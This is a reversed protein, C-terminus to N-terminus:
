LKTKLRSLVEAARRVEDPTLAAGAYRRRYHADVLASLEALEPRMTAVGTAFERPTQEPRRTLGARALAREASEYADGPRLWARFYPILWWGLGLVVVWPLIRAFVSMVTDRLRDFAMGLRFRLFTDRQTYQDYGIISRYWRTQLDDAWRQVRRAFADTAATFGSEAPTADVTVWGRGAVWAEVWAHANSQRIDYFKGWENWDESRFGTVLRTPVGAHRLLIAAATAFYECNGRRVEFLFEPLLVRRSEGSLSYSYERTLHRKIADIKAAPDTMGMTWQAALSAVRGGPDRPLVLANALARARLGDASDTPEWGPPGAYERYRAGGGFTGASLISDTHDFWLLESIGDIGRPAGVTFVVSVQMPYVDLDVFAENGPPAPFATVAGRRRGWARGLSTNMRRGDPSSYRFDLPVKTWTEGDFSDFAAGRVFLSPTATANVPVEPKVRMARASSRRLAGFRGLSVRDTFGIASQPSIRLKDMGSTVFPNFRRLGEVRPVILFVVAGLLAGAVVLRGLSPAWGRWRSADAGAQLTLWAAGFAVYAVFLPFYWPSVTLGSVLMFALFEILFNQRLERKPWPSFLRNFLLYGLLHVNALVVGSHRWDVLILFFLMGASMVNWAWLPPFPGGREQLWFGVPIFPAFGLLARPNLDDILFMASYVLAGGILTLRRLAPTDAAGPDVSSPAKAAPRPTAGAGVLALAGLLVDLQKRGKAPAVEVGPGTLGTEVGADVYWRCAAAAREVAPDDVGELRVSVRGEPATSFEAVVPAGTKATLKWHILRADDDPTYARPGFFEGDRGKRRGGAGMARPDEDLAPQPQFPGAQPLAVIDLPPLRRRLTFFGFPHLSELWLADLRNVGRYPLTLRLEARTTEGPSADFVTSAGLPGVVRVLRATGWGANEIVLRATFPTERFVQDSPELRVRLGRLNWRGFAASLLLGTVVASFLLYLLNNTTSGAVFLTFAAMAAAAVGLRTPRM